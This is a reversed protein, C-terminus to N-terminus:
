QPLLIKPWGATNCQGKGNSGAFVLSGDKKLGVAHGFKSSIAIIDTWDEVYQLGKDGLGTGVVTGDIKVGIIYFDGVEIQVIDTWRALEEGHELKVDEALVLTGDMKLGVYPYLSVIDKFKVTYYNEIFSQPVRTSEQADVAVTGDKRLACFMYGYDTAATDFSITRRNPVTKWLEFSRQRADSYDGLKGFAIAAEAYKGEDVLLDAQRYRFHEMTLVDPNVRVIGQATVPLVFGVFLLACLIASIFKKM